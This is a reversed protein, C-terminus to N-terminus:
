ASLIPPAQLRTKLVDLPQTILAGLTSSVCSVALVQGVPRSSQHNVSLPNSMLGYMYSFLFLVLIFIHLHRFEAIKTPLFLAGMWM